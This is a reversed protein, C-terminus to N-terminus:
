LKSHLHSCFEKRYTFGSVPCAWALDRGHQIQASHLHTKLEASFITSDFHVHGSTSAPATDDITIM